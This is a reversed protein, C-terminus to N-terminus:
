QQNHTRIHQQVQKATASPRQRNPQMSKNTCARSASASSPTLNDSSLLTVASTQRDGATSWLAPTTRPVSLTSSNLMEDSTPQGTTASHPGIAHSDSRTARTDFNIRAQGDFAHREHTNHCVRVTARRESATFKCSPRTVSGTFPTISDLRFTVRDSAEKVVSSSVSTFTVVEVPPDRMTHPVTESQKGTYWNFAM